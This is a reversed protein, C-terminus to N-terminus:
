ISLIQIRQYLNFTVDFPKLIISFKNPNIEPLIPLSDFRLKKEADNRKYKFFFCM